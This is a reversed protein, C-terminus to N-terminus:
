SNPKADPKVGRRRGILLYALGGLVPVFVGLGMWTMKEQPTPFDRHFAHWISWLNPIIPIALLILFLIGKTTPDSILETM